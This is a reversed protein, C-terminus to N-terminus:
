PNQLLIKDKEPMLFTKLDFGLGFISGGYEYITSYTELKELIRNADVILM